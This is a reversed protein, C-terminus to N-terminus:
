KDEGTLATPYVDGNQAIKLDEYPRSVRRYFEFQANRLAGIFGKSYGERRFEEVLALFIEEMEYANTPTQSRRVRSVLMGKYRQRTARAKDIAYDFAETIENQYEYRLGRLNLYRCAVSTLVYNLDGTSALRAGDELEQKRETTIYPM